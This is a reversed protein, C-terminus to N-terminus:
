GVFKLALLCCAISYAHLALPVSPKFAQHATVVLLPQLHTLYEQPASVENSAKSRWKTKAMVIMM